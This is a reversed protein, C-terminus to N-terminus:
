SPPRKLKRRARGATNAASVAWRVSRRNELSTLRDQAGKLADADQRAAKLASRPSHSAGADLLEDAVPFTAALDADVLMPVPLGRIEYRLGNLMVFPLSGSWYVQLPDGDPLALRPDAETANAIKGWADQMASALIASTVHRKSAGAVAFVRGDPHRVLQPVANATQIDSPIPEKTIRRNGKGMARGPDQGGKGSQRSRLEKAVSAVFGEYIKRHKNIARVFLTQELRDDEASTSPLDVSLAPDTQTVFAKYSTAPRLAAFSMPILLAPVDSTRVPLGTELAEVVLEWMGWHLMSADPGSATKLFSSPAVIGHFTQPNALVVPPVSVDLPESARVKDYQATLVVMEQEAAPELLGRAAPLFVAGARVILVSSGASAATASLHSTANYVDFFDDGPPGLTVGDFELSLPDSHGPQALSIKEYPVGLDRLSRITSEASEIPSDRLVVVNPMSAAPAAPAPAPPRKALTTVTELWRQAVRDIGWEEWARNRAEEMVEAIGHDGILRDISENWDQDRKVLFRHDLGVAEFARRHEPTASALVPIGLGICKLARNANKSATWSDLQVPVLVLDFKVLEEDVTDPHWEIDGGRTVTTVPRGLGLAELPALNSPNGFWGLKSGGYTEKMPASDTLDLPNDFLWVRSHYRRADVELAESGVTVVDVLNMFEVLENRVGVSPDLYNDDFDFVTLANAGRASELGALPRVKQFVVIDADDHQDGEYQVEHGARELAEGLRLGRLRSSGVDEGGFLQFDIRSM